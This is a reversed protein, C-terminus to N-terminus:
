EVRWLYIAHRHLVTGPMREVKTPSWGEIDFDHSVIRAGPKLQKQLIPKLKENFEPLLYLTVVTAESVDVTLADQVRFEVLHAVGEERAKARSKEVLDPDIEIGVGRAGYKQAARIVIRGDGSGLDYLVDGRKVEAMELMRDVVEMPTAVFPVDREIWSVFCASLLLFSTYINALWFLRHTMQAEAHLMSEA